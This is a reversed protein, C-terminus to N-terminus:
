LDNRKKICIKNINEAYARPFSAAFLLCFFFCFCLFFCFCFYFCVAPQLNGSCTANPSLDPLTAMLLDIRRVITSRRTAFPLAAQICAGPRPGYIMTADSIMDLLNISQMPCLEAPFHCCEQGATMASKQCTQVASLNPWLKCCPM